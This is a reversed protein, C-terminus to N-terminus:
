VCVVKPFGVCVCWLAISLQNVIRSTHLHTYIRVHVYTYICICIYIHVCTHFCAYIYLYISLYIWTVWSQARYATHTPHSFLCLAGHLLICFVTQWRIRVCMFACLVCHTYPTLVSMHSWATSYLIGESVRHTCRLEWSLLAGSRRECTEKSIVDMEKWIYILLSIYILRSMYRHSFILADKVPRKQYWM